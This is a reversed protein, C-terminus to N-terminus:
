RGLPSLSECTLGNVWRLSGKHESRIVTKGEWIFVKCTRPPPPPPMYVCHPILCFRTSYVAHYKVSLGPAGNTLEAIIYKVVPLMYMGNFVISIVWLCHSPIITVQCVTILTKLLASILFRSSTKGARLIYIKCCGWWLLYVTSSFCSIGLSLIESHSSNSWCSSLDVVWWLSTVSLYQSITYLLFFPAM